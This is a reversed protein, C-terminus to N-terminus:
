DADLRPVCYPYPIYLGPCESKCRPGCHYGLCIHCVRRFIEMKKMDVYCALCTHEDMEQPIAVPDDIRDFIRMEILLRLGSLSSVSPQVTHELLVRTIVECIVPDDFDAGVIALGVYYASDGGFVSAHRQSVESLMGFETVLAGLDIRRMVM